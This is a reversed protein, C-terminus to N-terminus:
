DTDSWILETRNGGNSKATYLLQDALGISSPTSAETLACMGVSVTIYVSQHGVTAMPINRIMRHLREVAEQADRASTNTLLVAFEEGGWRCIIDSERFTNRCVEAFQRIVLDGAEHGFEDNVRKFDDFDIMLLAAPHEGRKIRAREKHLYEEFARRNLLGSLPDTSALRLLDKQALQLEQILATQKANAQLLELYTIVQNALTRLSCRQKEDLERPQYDLVCLTGLPNGNDDKLVISAYFRLYPAGSVWLHNAFHPDLTTDPVVLLDSQQHKHIFFSAELPLATADFGFVSQSKIRDQNILTILAVPTECILAALKTIEDFTAKKDRDLAEYAALTSLLQENYIASKDEPTSHQM